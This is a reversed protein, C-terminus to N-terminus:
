NWGNAVDVSLQFTTQVSPTGYRFVQGNGSAIYFIDPSVMQCHYSTWGGTNMVTWTTGGDHTLLVIGLTGVIVGNNMDYWDQDWFSAGLLPTTVLSWNTGGNTTKYFAGNTGDSGVAYVNNADFADVDEIFAVGPLSQPTWNTGGNTTKQVTAHGFYGINADVMDVGKIRGDLTIISQNIWTLGADTTKAIIVSGPGNPGGVLWGTSQNIFDLDIFSKGGNFPINIPTLNIGGDTSKGFYGGDGAFYGNNNDFMQLRNLITTQGSVFPSVQFSSGGDNSYIISGPFDSWHGTAIIKGSSSEVYISSNVGWDSFRQSLNIWNSGSDTSKYINGYRGAAVITSGVVDVCYSFGSYLQSTPLNFASWSTGNDTSKFLENYDGAVYIENNVVKVQYNTQSSPTNAGDTWTFGGDTTSHFYGVGGCVYGTTSNVFELDYLPQATGLQIINWSAGGDTTKYIKGGQACATINLESTAFVDYYSVPDPLNPLEVWTNGGDTTKLIKVFVNFQGGTNGCIFGLNSNVFYIGNVTASGFPYPASDWIRLTDFTEGGDTTKLIGWGSAPCIIGNNQDFFWAKNAHFNTLANPYAKNPWGARNNTTWTQGADTTKMFSGYNGALYWNNADWMKMWKLDWGQPSPHLWKLNPDSQANILISYAIFFITLFRKM